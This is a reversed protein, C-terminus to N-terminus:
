KGPPTYDIDKTQAVVEKIIEDLAETATKLNNLVELNNNDQISKLDVLSILGLISAVPGRVKHSQIWAIEKLKENQEQIKILQKEQETIDRSVCNVGVIKEHIDFIPSSNIEYYMTDGGVVEELITTFSEGELVREYEKKRKTIFAGSRWPGLIYDGEDLAVGALNYFFDQFAKNCFIIKLDRDVSWILDKTNNITSLLKQESNRIADYLEKEKTIDISIGDFTDIKGNIGKKYVVSAKLIKITGDKNVYRYTHETRGTTKVENMAEYFGERDDPHITDINLDIDPEREGPIYGYLQYYAKNGYLLQYNDVRRSWIADSISSLIDDLQEKQQTILANLERNEKDALFKENVDVSFCLRANVSGIHTSHSYIHVYFIEGTKKKHRHYGADYYDKTRNEYSTVFFPKEEEPRIDMASMSLFEDKSYGYKEIAAKNVVLFKMTKEDVIWMPIPGNDFHKEYEQAVNKAHVLQANREIAVAIAKDLQEPDFTGNVLLCQGGGRIIDVYTDTKNNDTLIVVPTNIFNHNLVHLASSLEKSESPLDALILDVKQGSFSLSEPLSNVRWINETRYNLASLQKNLTNFNAEDAQIVLIKKSM